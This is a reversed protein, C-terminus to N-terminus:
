EIIKRKFRIGEKTKAEMQLIFGIQSNTYKVKVLCKYSCFILGLVDHMFKGEESHVSYKLYPVFGKDECKECKM